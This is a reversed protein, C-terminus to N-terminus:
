ESNEKRKKRGKGKHSISQLKQRAEVLRVSAETERAQLEVFKVREELEDMTPREKKPKDASKNNAM